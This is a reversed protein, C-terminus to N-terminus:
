DSLSSTVLDQVRKQRWAVADCADTFCVAASVALLGALPLDFLVAPVTVILGVVCGIANVAVWPDSRGYGRAHTAPLSELRSRKGLSVEMMQSVLVAPSIITGYVVVFGILSAAVPYDAIRAAPINGVRVFFAVAVVANALRMVSAFAHLYAVAGIPGVRMRRAIAAVLPDVALTQVLQVIRNM